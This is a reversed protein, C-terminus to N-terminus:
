RATENRQMRARANVPIAAAVAVAADVPASAAALLGEEGEGEGRGRPGLCSDSVRYLRTDEETSDSALSRLASPTSASSSTGASTTAPSWDLPLLLTTSATAPTGSGRASPVHVRQGVSTRMLHTSVHCLPATRQHKPMPRYNSDAVTVADCAHRYRATLCDM